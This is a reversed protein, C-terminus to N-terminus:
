GLHRSLSGAYKVDLITGRGIDRQVGFSFNYTVPRNSSRDYGSVNAPFISGTGTTLQSINSNFVNASLVFPPNDIQALGTFFGDDEVQYFIGGGGRIATKGNGFPDYAFGFRPAVLIPPKNLFGQPVGPTSQLVMGN